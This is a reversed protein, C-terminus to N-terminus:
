LSGGSDMSDLLEDSLYKGLLYYKRDPYWLIKKGKWEIYSTYTAIESTKKPGIAIDDTDFLKYPEKFWIPQHADKVFYGISTYTPNRFFNAENQEWEDKFQSFGLHEGQNNHFILFFRGDSMKYIPCPSIPHEIFGGNDKYRLAEPKRWTKGNDDSVSYHVYGTMTRMVAFLRGDPLLVISPEQNTSMEPIKKNQSELGKDDEPLWSIVIDEPDPSDDINEFRMFYSRSDANVWMYRQPSHVKSTVLTYGVIYKGNIDRIPLQWVIWNKPYLRDPNDYKSRPMPILYEDSWNFGNDDSYICGMGGSGQRNNDFVDLERTYFIYIRGGKTVVPFGWSAQRDDVGEKVGAIYQPTSWDVANSSRAMVIHNDGKGECSSQTWSALLEDSKPAKIVLFHENDNDYSDKIPKYLVIDPESRKWEIEPNGMPIEPASIGFPYGADILEQRSPLKKTKM